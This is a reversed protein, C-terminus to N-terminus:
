QSSGFRLLIESQTVDHSPSIYCDQFAQFVFINSHWLIGYFAEELVMKCIRRLEESKMSCHSGPLVDPRCPKWWHIKKDEARQTLSPWRLRFDALVKDFNFWVDFDALVQRSALLVFCQFEDIYLSEIDHRIFAKIKRQSVFNASDPQFWAAQIFKQWGRAACRPPEFKQM